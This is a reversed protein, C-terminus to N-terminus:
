FEPKFSPNVWVRRVQGSTLAARSADFPVLMEAFALADAALREDPGEIEHDWFHVGGTTPNVYFYNGFDDEALPIAMAPFEDTGAALEPAESVPIFRLVGVENDSTPIFNADPRAGDHTAVFRTYSDPLPHGISNALADLAHETPRPMEPISVAV